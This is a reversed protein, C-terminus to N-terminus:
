MLVYATSFSIDDSICGSGGDKRVKLLPVPLLLFWIMMKKNNKKERWGVLWLRDDPKREQHFHFKSM